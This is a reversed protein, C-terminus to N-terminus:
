RTGGPHIHRVADNDGVVVESVLEPAFLGHDVVGPTSALRRALEACDDVPGLYDALVGGDPSPPSDRLVVTALRALTSALGFSLLEVPVPARLEEVIKSSDVIVVFRRAASAVIKERTHAGGAGKVLWGDPAVQDAGDIALDLEVLTDFAETAIGLSSATQATRPSTAVYLADVDRQALARLLYTMTSGSGLGVRMGSEVMDAAVSAALRKEREVNV